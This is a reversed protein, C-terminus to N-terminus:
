IRIKIARSRHDDDRTHRSGETGRDGVGDTTEIPEGPDGAGPVGPGARGSRSVTEIDAPCACKAPHIIFANSYRTHLPPVRARPLYSLLTVFNVKASAGESITAGRGVAIVRYGQRTYRELTLTIDNPVTAARSLSIIMEPSGKTYARHDNSGSARAIVSMRQLSSSFQYQEMIGIETSENTNESPRVVRPALDDHKDAHARDSERLTWKTSEFM